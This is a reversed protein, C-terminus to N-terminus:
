KGEHNGRIVSTVRPSNRNQIAPLRRELAAWSIEIDEYAEDENSCGITIMDQPRLVNWNFNLGVYPTVRGAACPKITMVPKKANHIVRIISEIEVQMLFGM